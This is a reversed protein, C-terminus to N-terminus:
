ALDLNGAQAVTVRGDLESLLSERKSVQNGCFFHHKLLTFVDGLLKLCDNIYFAAISICVGLSDNM